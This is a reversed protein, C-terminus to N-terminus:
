SSLLPLATPLAAAAVGASALSSLVRGAAAASNM